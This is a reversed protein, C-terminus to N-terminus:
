PLRAGPPVCDEIPLSKGGEFLFGDDGQCRQSKNEEQDDGAGVLDDVGVQLLAKVDGEALSAIQGCHSPMPTTSPLTTPPCSMWRTPRLRAVAM